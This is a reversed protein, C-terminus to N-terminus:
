ISVKLLYIFLFLLYYKRCLLILLWIIIIIFGNEFFVLFYCIFDLEVLKRNCGIIIISLM